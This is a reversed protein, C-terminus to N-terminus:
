PAPSHSQYGCSSKCPQTTFSASQYMGAIRREMGRCKCETVATATTAWGAEQKHMVFLRACTKKNGRWEVAALHFCRRRAFCFLDILFASSPPCPKFRSLRIFPAARSGRVRLLITILPPSFVKCSRQGLQTLQLPILSYPLMTNCVRGYTQSTRGQVCCHKKVVFAFSQAQLSCISSAAATNKSEWSHVLSIGQVALPYFNRGFIYAPFLSLTHSKLQWPGGTVFYIASQVPRLINGVKRSTLISIKHDAPELYIFPAFNQFSLLKLFFIGHISFAM